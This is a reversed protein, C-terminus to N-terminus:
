QFAVQLTNAVKGDVTLVVNVTGRGQLTRPLPGINVQDEGVYFGQERAYELDCPISDITVSVGALGM